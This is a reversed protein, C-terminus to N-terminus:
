CVSLVIFAKEIYNFRDQKNKDSHFGKGGRLNLTHYFIYEDDIVFKFNLAMHPTIRNKYKFMISKLSSLVDFVKKVEV